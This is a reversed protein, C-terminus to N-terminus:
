LRPVTLIGLELRAHFFKPQASGKTVVRGNGGHTLYSIPGQSTAVFEMDYLMLGLDDSHNIPVEEGTPEEFYATCERTGLYPQHHCQGRKVRRRFQDRYKAIDDNAHSKLAIQAKIVYEVNRLCLSHRQARDEEVYYNGKARESQHSNMENRLISFHRIPKLVQIEQVLWVMEPKWFIAELVGRAASPTMVPYTVREASFELRTFLALDGSVKVALDPYTIM